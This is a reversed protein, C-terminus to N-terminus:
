SYYLTHFLTSSVLSIAGVYTRWYRIIRSRRKVRCNTSQRLGINDLTLIMIFYSRIPFHFHSPVFLQWLHPHAELKLIMRLLWLIGVDNCSVIVKVTFAVAYHLLSYSSPIWGANPSLAYFYRVRHLKCQSVTTHRGKGCKMMWENKEGCGDFWDSFVMM